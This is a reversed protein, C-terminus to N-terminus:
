SAAGPELAQAITAFLMAVDHLSPPRGKIEFAATVLAAALQIAEDPTLDGDFADVYVAREVPEGDIRTELAHALVRSGRSVGHHVTYGPDGPSWDVDERETEIAWGPREAERIDAPETFITTM